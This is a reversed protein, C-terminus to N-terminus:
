DCQYLAMMAKEIQWWTKEYNWSPKKVIWATIESLDTPYKENSLMYTYMARRFGKPEMKSRAYIEADFYPYAEMSEKLSVTGNEDCDQSLIVKVAEVVKLKCNSDGAIAGSSLIFLFCPVFFRLRFM